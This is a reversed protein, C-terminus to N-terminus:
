ASCKQHFMVPRYASIEGIKPARFQSTFTHPLVKNKNALARCKKLLLPCFKKTSRVVARTPSTPHPNQGLLLSFIKVLIIVSIINYSKFKLLTYHSLPQHSSDLANKVFFQFVFSFEESLKRWLNTIQGVFFTFRVM